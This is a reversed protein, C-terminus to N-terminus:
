CATWEPISQRTLESRSALTGPATDSMTDSVVTPPPCDPRISSAATQSTDSLPARVTISRRAPTRWRPPRTPAPDSAAGLRWSDSVGKEPCHRVGQRTRRGHRVDAMYQCPTRCGEANDSLNASVHGGPDDVHGHGRDPGARTQPRVEGPQHRVTRVYRAPQPRRPTPCPPVCQSPVPACTDAVTASTNTDSVGKEPCHRVGQRPEVVTDSMLWANVRFPLWPTRCGEANDSVRASV